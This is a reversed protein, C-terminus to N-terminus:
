SNTRSFFDIRTIIDTRKKVKKNYKKFLDVIIKTDRNYQEIKDMM